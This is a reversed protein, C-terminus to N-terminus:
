MSVGLLGRSVQFGVLGARAAVPQYRGEAAAVALRTLALAPDRGTAGTGTNSTGNEGAAPSGAAQAGEGLVAAVEPTVEEGPLMPLDLDRGQRRVTGPDASVQVLPVFPHGPITVDAVHVVIAAAGGAALAAQAELWDEGPGAVVHLGAVEPAAGHPLTVAVDQEALGVAARFAASALLPSGDVLLVSLGADLAARAVRGLDRAGDEPVPGIAHLALTSGAPAHEQDASGAPSDVPPQAAFWDTVKAEVADIGGDLQISAWGVSDLGIDAETLRERFYDNHTKECGHELLLAHAVRPHQVHGLVVRSYLRESAGSSSGCGETHVPAAFRQLGGHGSGTLHDAIRRAVQGSCISTPMVLGVDRPVRTAALVGSLAPDRAPEPQQALPLPKGDADEDALAEEPSAAPDEPGRQWERWLSVQSHGAREGASREGSSVAVTLDLVEQTLQEMPTGTLLRGADVDMEAPLMRYRGTTTVMKVTPVFPFNTVSGNGTTFFIINAGTAVEGAISELDNGPSDMFVYGPGPLPEAYDLVHDLRVRPDLKRCAGLSKISINYLGRWLNGGSPNGEATHGHRQVQEKFREVVQLFRTAIGTDRCRSLVYDEAGILEDTEALIASGGRRVLEGAVSGALPNASIGSFADSGGCQLALTLASLPQETREAVVQPVWARIVAEARALDEEVTGERTLYARPRGTEPYDHDRLYGQLDANGIGGPEDIALLAGINPHVAYGALTRLVLERNHSIRRRGGETHVVTVLPDLGPETRGVDSLRRALAEVFAGTRSSTAVVVIHNRTGVGLGPGRDYGLFTRGDEVPSIQDAPVFTEPDFDPPDLERDVANPEEPFDGEVHRHVLMDQIRATMVYDGAAIPRTAVAFPLGWSLLREGAAVDRVAFRHGEMVTHRAAVEGDPLPLETGPDLRRTAVAVNDGATPLIGVDGVLVSM